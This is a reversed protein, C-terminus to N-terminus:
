LRHPSWPRTSYIRAIKSGNGIEFEPLRNEACCAIVIKEHEAVPTFDSFVVLYDIRNERLFREINSHDFGRLRDASLVKNKGLWSFMLVRQYDLPTTEVEELLKRAQERGEQGSKEEIRDLYSNVPDIPPPAALVLGSAQREALFRAVQYDTRLEPDANAEGIRHLGRNLSYGATLLIVLLPVGLRLIPTHVRVKSFEGILRSGGIGAYVVLISVPMFAERETVIRIPDPKIGHGSFLLAALLLVLFGL